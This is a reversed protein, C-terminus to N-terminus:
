AAEAGAHMSLVEDPTIGLRNVGDFAATKYCEALTPYNFVTNVFYEITGGFTLVAQGIHVLESAGEGIIHVGLLAHTNLHFILKLLGTTDGSIQGRAIERYHAKGVEYPVGAETLEDETRGVMSIEPISYIGYPFLSPASSADVGFAHCAALRGQEMSTSALSPFGIVDGVAYIHPVSTQYDANVPMRGRDDVALGAAELNLTSTAGTRGISYLVCDTVIQKGSGLHIRVRDGSADTILEMGSVEEGLRLTVRDERLHHALMDVIESDVFPLLRQRKDIITVRVGLAAFLSAYEIGIVGAGVVTLSRPLRTLHLMDDSSCIRQGDFPIHTDSTAETGTAIVVNSATVDRSGRQGRGNGDDVVDTLRLTHPDVFEASATFVEVQNRMLQHQTVDLEHRVVHETRFLLDKMTINQKVTYSAGYLGRLRYGSLHLVAERLTKSPITGTNICTGGIVAKREVLAARKNLKAAQIAARQGAPGSGIVLVDYSFESV